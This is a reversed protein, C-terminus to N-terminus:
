GIVVVQVDGVNTHTPGTRILDGLRDFFHYADNNALSAAVDGAGDRVARAATTRDVLAGAADTPGDIGDTGASVLVSEREAGALAPAAALALEQNRGGRGRGVVRVTTEGGSVICCPGEHRRALALARSVLAPGADRAEGVIPEDITIVRYGRREAERCAGAMADRRGGVIEYGARALRPDGPKPTERRFGAAGATLASLVADPMVLRVGLRDIISLADAFTTPDPVTPGSGIVSPDDEVPGVVDSLAWTMSACAAAIALQGGKIASLHKRVCNLEHIAAGAALLVRTAAMKDELSLGAAPATMLASAGGSLLVLLTDDAAAEAVIALARRAARESAETPVPHGALHVEVQAPLEEDLHTTAVLGRAVIVDARLCAHLMPGAAKGVAVVTTRPAGVERARARWRELLPALLVEPRAADIASRV